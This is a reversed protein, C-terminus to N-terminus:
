RKLRLGSEFKNILVDAIRKAGYGDVYDRGIKSRKVREKYPTFINIAGAIKELLGKENYWGVYEIFNKRHWEILNLVQNEAFCIGITPVGVRALENMTQGGGSICVDAKLMLNLMEKTNVRNKVPDVICFIFNFKEELYNVIKYVWDSCDIGGFTVLINEMDKNIKKEPVKWFEKRL